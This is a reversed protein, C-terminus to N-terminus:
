NLAFATPDIYELVAAAIAFLTVAFSNVLLDAIILRKSEASSASKKGISSAISRIKQRSIRVFGL